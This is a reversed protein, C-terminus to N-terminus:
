QYRFTGNVMELGGGGGCFFFLNTLLFYRQFETIRVRCGELSYKCNLVNVARSLSCNNYQDHPKMYIPFKTVDIARATVDEGAFTEDYRGKSLGKM